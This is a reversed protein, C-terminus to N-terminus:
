EKLPVISEIIKQFVLEKDIDPTGLRGYYESFQAIYAELYPSDLSAVRQDINILDLSIQHLAQFDIVLDPIFFTSPLFIFRSPQFRVGDIKMNRNNRILGLLDDKVNNSIPKKNNLLEQIIRFEPQESLLFCEAVAIDKVKGQEIDCSPTLVIWYSERNHINGKIIDGTTFNPNISPYIYIEIPHIKPDNEEPGHNIENILFRRISNRELSNALRRALLYSIETKEYPTTPDQWYKQVNDWMYIRQEEDLHKILRPLGTDFIELIEKRLQRDEGRTVIKVYPNKMHLVRQPYATYFIVPIFRTECIQKFVNEGALPKGDEELKISDDKLDLIVLDIRMRMLIDLADGFNPCKEVIVRDPKQIVLNDKIFEETENAQRDDVVLFQWVIGDSM